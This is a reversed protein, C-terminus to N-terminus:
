KKAEKELDILSARICDIQIEIRNLYKKIDAIQAIEKKEVLFTDGDETLSPSGDIIKRGKIEEYYVEEYIKGCGQCYFINEDPAKIIEHGCECRM